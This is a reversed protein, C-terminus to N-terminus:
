LCPATSAGQEIGNPGSARARIFLSSRTTSLGLPDVCIQQDADVAYLGLNAVVVGSPTVLPPSASSSAIFTYITGTSPSKIILMDFDTTTTTPSVALRLQTSWQPEEDAASGADVALVGASGHAVIAEMDDYGLTVYDEDTPIRGVIDRMTITSGGSITLLKGLILCDSQGRGTGAALGPCTDASLNTSHQVRNANVYQEQILSRFSRAADIYRQNNINLTASAFISATLLASVVLFLTVEIITFGQERVGTIM